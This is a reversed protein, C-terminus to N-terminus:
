SQTEGITPKHAALASEYVAASRPRSRNASLIKASPGVASNALKIRDDFRAGLPEPSPLNHRRGHEGPADPDAGRDPQLWLAGNTGAREARSLDAFRQTAAAGM